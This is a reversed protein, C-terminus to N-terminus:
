AGLALLVEFWTRVEAGLSASQDDRPRFGLFTASGGGKLPRHVGLVRQGARAVVEAGEEAEVPYVLDVLFDTLVPQAPVKALLGSFQVSWGGAPQGELEFRLAKVAFLRRWQDLVAKGAMDLRPPPGSWIVK